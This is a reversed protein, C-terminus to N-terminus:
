WRLKFLCAYGEIGQPGAAVSDTTKIELDPLSWSVRRQALTLLGVQRALPDQAVEGRASFFFFFGAGAAGVVVGGLGISVYVHDRAEAWSAGALIMLLLILITIAARHKM